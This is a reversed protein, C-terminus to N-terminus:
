NAEQMLKAHSNSNPEGQEVPLDTFREVPALCETGGVYVRAGVTRTM